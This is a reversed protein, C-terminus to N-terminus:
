FHQNAVAIILIQLNRLTLFPVVKQNIDVFSFSFKQKLSYSSNDTM